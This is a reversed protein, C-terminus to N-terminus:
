GKPLFCDSLLALRRYESGEGRQTDRKYRRLNRLIDFVTEAIEARDRVWLVIIRLGFPWYRM